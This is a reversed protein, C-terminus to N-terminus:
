LYTPKDASKWFICSFHNKPILIKEIKKKKDDNRFREKLNIENM